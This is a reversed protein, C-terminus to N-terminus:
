KKKKLLNEFFDKKGRRDAYRLLRTTNFTYKSYANEWINRWESGQLFDFLTKDCYLDVIIKELEPVPVGEIKRVPSETLLPKIIIVNEEVGVMDFAIEIQHILFVTGFKEKLQYYVAELTEKETECISFFRTPLHHALETILQTNWVCYDVLPFSSKIFASVTKLFPVVEAQFSNKDPLSYRGRGIRQISGSKVLEYMRWNVTSSPLGKEEQRFM